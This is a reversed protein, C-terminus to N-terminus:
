FDEQFFNETKRKTVKYHKGGTFVKWKWCQDSKDCESGVYSEFPDCDDDSHGDLESRKKSRIKLPHVIM